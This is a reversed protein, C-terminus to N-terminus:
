GLLGHTNTSLLQVPSQPIKSRSNVDPSSTSVHVCLKALSRHEPKTAPETKMSIGSIYMSPVALEM